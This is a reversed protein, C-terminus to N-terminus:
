GGDKMAAPPAKIAWCIQVAYSNPVREVLGAKEMAILRRRILATANMGYKPSLINRIVYTMASGGWEQIAALIEDDLTQWESM